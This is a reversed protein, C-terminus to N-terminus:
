FMKPLSGSPAALALMMGRHQSLILAMAKSPVYLVGLIAMIRSQRNPISCM